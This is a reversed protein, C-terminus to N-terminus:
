NTVLPVAIRRRAPLPAAELGVLDGVLHHPGGYTVQVSAFSGPRVSV